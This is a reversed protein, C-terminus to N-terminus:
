RAAYAAATAAAYRPDNRELVQSAGAHAAAAASFRLENRFRRLRRTVPSAPSVAVLGTPLVAVLGGITGKRSRMDMPGGGPTYGPNGERAGAMGRHLM